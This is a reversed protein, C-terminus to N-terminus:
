PRVVRFGVSAGQTNPTENIRFQPACWNYPYNWSGGKKVRYNVAGLGRGAASDSDVLGEPLVGYYTDWMWECVNGSMDFLGLENPLKLGAPNTRNDPNVCNLDYWAYDGVSAYAAGAEASAAYGKNWAGANHGAVIDGSRADSTAGIAAWVWEMETPLRYGNATWDASAANWDASSLLPIALFTLSEFNVPVGAVAVSYVPTLGEKLSLKNCFAIAHYWNVNQVPDDTGLSFSTVPDAWGTVAVWQARTIETASMRFAQRIRTISAPTADRQYSGVPIAELQGVNLSVVDSLWKAYLVVATSAIELQGGWPAYDQGSGDAQTNWGAFAHDSRLLTGTNALVSASNGPQYRNLDQPVAGGTAGNADYSVSLFSQVSRVVRFGNDFYDLGGGAEPVTPGIHTVEQYGEVPNRSTGGCRSPNPQAQDDSGWSWEFLNGSIDYLGYGNPLKGAVPKFQDSSIVVHWEYADADAASDGWYYTTTSGGRTAWIRESLLPLRYGNKSIDATYLAANISADFPPSYYSINVFSYVPELGELSSLTNCFAMADYMTVKGVPITDALQGSESYNFGLVHQFLEQTVMTAGMAFSVVHLGTSPETGEPVTVMAPGPFVRGTALSTSGGNYVTLYAAQDTPLDVTSLRVSPGDSGTAQSHLQGDASQLFVQMDATLNSLFLSHAVLLRSGPAILWTRSEGAALEESNIDHLTEPILSTGDAGAPVLNLRVSATELGVVLGAATQTFRLAGAADFAEAKVTYRGYPIGTLPVSVTTSGAGIATPGALIAEGDAEPLLSISMTTANPLILRSQATAAASVAAAQSTRAAKSPQRAGSIIFTLSLDARGAKDGGLPSQCAAILCVMLLRTLGSMLAKSYGSFSSPRQFFGLSTKAPM